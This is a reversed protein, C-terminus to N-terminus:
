ARPGLRAGAAAGAAGIGGGISQDGACPRAAITAPHDPGGGCRRAARVLSSPRCWRAGCWGLVGPPRGLARASAAAMDLRVMGPDLRPWRPVSAGGPDGATVLALTVLYRGSDAHTAHRSRHDARATGAAPSSGM